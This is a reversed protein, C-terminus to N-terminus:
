FKIFDPMESISLHSLKHTLSLLSNPLTKSSPLRTTITILLWFSAPVPYSPFLIHLFIHKVFSPPDRAGNAWAEGGVGRKFLSWNIIFTSLPRSEKDVPQNFDDNKRSKWGKEYIDLRTKLSDFFSEILISDNTWYNKSFKQIIRGINKM